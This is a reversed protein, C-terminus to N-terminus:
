AVALSHWLAIERLISPLHPLPCPNRKRGKNKCGNPFGSCNLWKASVPLITMWMSPPSDESHLIACVEYVSSCPLFCGHKLIFRSAKENIAIPKVPLCANANLSFYIAAKLCRLPSPPNHCTVSFTVAKDCFIDCSKIYINYYIIYTICLKTVIHRFM